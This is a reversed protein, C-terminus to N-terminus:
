VSMVLSGVVLNCFFFFFKDATKVFGIEISGGHFCVDRPCFFFIALLYFTCKFFVVESYVFKM